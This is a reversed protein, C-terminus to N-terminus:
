NTAMEGKWKKMPWNPSLLFALSYQPRKNSERKKLIRKKKKGEEFHSAALGFNGCIKSVFSYDYFLCFFGLFSHHSTQM